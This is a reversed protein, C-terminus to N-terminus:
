VHWFLIILSIYTSLLLLGHLWSARGDVVISFAVLVSLTMSLVELGDFDLDMPVEMAWGVLVAFPLVLLAVQTAGSMALGIALNTGGRRALLIGQLGGQLNGAVPLLIVGVFRATMTTRSTLEQISDVLIDSVEGVLYTSGILLVLSSTMSLLPEQADFDDESKQDQPRSAQLMQVIVYAVYTIATVVSLFRSISLVDDMELTKGKTEFFLTPLVFSMSGLLLLSCSFIPEQVGFVIQNGRSGAAMITVGLVFLLNNLISGLMASKVVDYLGAQLSTVTVIMETANGLSANILAGLSANGM